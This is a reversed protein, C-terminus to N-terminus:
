AVDVARHLTVKGVLGRLEGCDEGIWVSMCM